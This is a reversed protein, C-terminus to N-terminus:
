RDSITYNWQPHTHHREIHIKSMEEDSFKLGKEYKKKDLRAYVKLGSKTRTNKIFSIVVRYDVLPKGKWNMSIFSFLRHEIKNWKSTGPPYHCVT